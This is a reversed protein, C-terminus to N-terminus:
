WWFLMNANAASSFTAGRDLTEPSSWTQYRSGVGHIVSPSQSSRLEIRPRLAARDCVGDHNGLQLLLRCDSM